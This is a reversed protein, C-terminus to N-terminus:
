STFIWGGRKNYAVPFLSTRREHNGFYIHVWYSTKLMMFIGKKKVRM